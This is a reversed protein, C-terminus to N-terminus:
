GATALMPTETEAVARNRGGSKAAYLAADSLRYVEDISRSPTLEAVGISATIAIPGARTKVPADAILSRALNALQLGSSRDAGVVFVAFEEGGLRAIDATVGDFARSLLDSIAAIADDGAQHGFKDNIGKFRDIDILLLAGANDRAEVSDIFARRNLLGSLPDIRSLKKFENRNIALNRIASGIFYCILYSVSAAIVSTVTLGVLLAQPLPYPLLGLLDLVIHIVAMGLNAIITILPVLRWAFRSVGGDLLLDCHAAESGVWKEVWGLM